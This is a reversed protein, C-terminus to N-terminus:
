STAEEDDDADGEGPIPEDDTDDTLAAIADLEDDEDDDEGDGDDETATGGDAPEHAPDPPEEDEDDEPEEPDVRPIEDEDVPQVGTPYGLAEVRAEAAAEWGGEPESLIAEWTRVEVRGTVRLGTADQFQRVAKALMVGYRGDITGAWFGKVWLAAQIRRVHEGRDTTDLTRRFELALPSRKAEVEDVIEEPTTPIESSPEVPPEDPAPVIVPNGDGDLAPSGGANVVAIGPPHTFDARDITTADGAPGSEVVPATADAAPEAPEQTPDAAPPEVPEGVADTPPEAPTQPPAVDELPAVPPETPTEPTVAPVVPEPEAPTAAKAASSKRPAAM